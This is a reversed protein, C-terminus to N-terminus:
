RGKPSGIGVATSWSTGSANFTGPPSRLGCVTSDWVLIEFETWKLHFCFIQMELSKEPPKTVAPALVVARSGSPWCIFVNAWGTLDVFYGGSSPLRHEEVPLRGPTGTGEVNRGLCSWEAVPDRPNIRICNRNPRRLFGELPRESLWTLLSLGPPGQHWTPWGAVAVLWCPLVETLALVGRLKWLMGSYHYSREMCQRILDERFSWSALMMVIQMKCIFFSFKMLTFHQVWWKATWHRLKFKFGQPWFQLWFAMNGEGLYSKLFSFGLVIWTNGEWCSQSFFM